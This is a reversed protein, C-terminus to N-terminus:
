DEEIGAMRTRLRVSNQEAMPVFYLMHARDDHASYPQSLAPIATWRPIRWTCRPFLPPTRGSYLLGFIETSGAIAANQPRKPSCGILQSNWSLAGNGSSDRSATLICLATIYTSFLM